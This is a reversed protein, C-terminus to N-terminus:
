QDTTQILLSTSGGVRESSDFSQENTERNIHNLLHHRRAKGKKKSKVNLRSSKWCNSNWCRQRPYCQYSRAEYPPPRTNNTFGGLPTHNDEDQLPLRSQSWFVLSEKGELKKERTTSDVAFSLRWENASLSQITTDPQRYTLVPAPINQIDTPVGDVILLGFVFVVHKFYKWVSRARRVGLLALENNTLVEIRIVSCPQFPHSAMWRDLLYHILETKEKNSFDLNVLRVHHQITSLSLEWNMSKLQWCELFALLMAKSGKNCGTPHKSGRRRRLWLKSRHGATRVLAYFNRKDPCHGEVIFRGEDPQTRIHPDLLWQSLLFAVVLFRTPHTLYVPQFGQNNLHFSSISWIMCSIWSCDM